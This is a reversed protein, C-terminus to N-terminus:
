ERDSYKSALMEKLLLYIKNENEKDLLNELNEYEESEDNVSIENMNMKEEAPMNQDHMPMGHSNEKNSHHM